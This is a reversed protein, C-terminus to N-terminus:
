LVDLVVALGCLCLVGVGGLVAVALRGGPAVAGEAHCLSV